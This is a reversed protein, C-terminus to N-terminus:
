KSLVKRWWEVTEALGQEMPTYDNWGVESRLRETDAVVRAAEGPRAEIAGVRLLEPNGCLRAAASVLDVIPIATGTGINVAGTVESDFLAVLARGVDVSYMYDREQRGHSTLAEQGSLISSIVSPVLRRRNEFPGYLFFLRSWAVSIGTAEALNNTLKFLGAKAKGYQTRPRLPTTEENLVPTEWDYEYCTGIYLARTGGVAAFERTLDLSTAVWRYNEASEMYDHVSLDWAAHLLHTPRVRQLLRLRASADLLDTQHFTPDVDSQFPSRGMVHVEFGAEALPELCNRGIFGAAGTVLVRKM